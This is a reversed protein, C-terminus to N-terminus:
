YLHRKFDINVIQLLITFATHTWYRARSVVAAVPMTEIFIEFM